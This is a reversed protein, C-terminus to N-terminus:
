KESEARSEVKKQEDGFPVCLGINHKERTENISKSKLKIVKKKKKTQGDGQYYFGLTKKIKKLDYPLPM